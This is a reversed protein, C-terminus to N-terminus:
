PLPRRGVGMLPRMREDEIPVDFGTDVSVVDLGASTLARTIDDRTLGFPPDADPSYEWDWQVFHGGPALRSALMAAAGPYDDLFACVSSCVILDFPEAALPDGSINEPTWRAVAARVKPLSKARLVDIMAASADVAVVEACLPALRESLLGTGCGFDLVRTRETVSVAALLSAFAADAYAVVVPNQDWGQAEDRWPDTEDIDHEGKAESM